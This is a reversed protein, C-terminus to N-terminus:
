PSVEGPAFSDILSLWRTQIASWNKLLPLSYNISILANLKKSIFKHECHAIGRFAPGDRETKAEEATCLILTSVLGTSERLFYVDQAATTSRDVEPFALYKSFDVGVRELGFQSSKVDPGNRRYCTQPTDNGFCLPTGALYTQQRFSYQLENEPQSGEEVAGSSIFTGMANPDRSNCSGADPRPRFDPWMTCILLIRYAQRYQHIKKEHAASFERSEPSATGFASPLRLTTQKAGVRDLPWQVIYFEPLPPTVANSFNGVGAAFIVFLLMANLIPFMRDEM